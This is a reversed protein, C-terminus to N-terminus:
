RAIYSRHIVAGRHAQDRTEMSINTENAHTTVDIRRNVETDTRKGPSGAALFATIEGKEVLEYRRGQQQEAFADVAATRILKPWMRRFLASSGYVEAGEVKGNIARCDM